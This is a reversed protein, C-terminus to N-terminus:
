EDWRENKEGKKDREDKEDKVWGELEKWGKGGKWGELETSVRRMKYEDKEYKEGKEDM